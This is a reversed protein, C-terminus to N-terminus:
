FKEYCGGLFLFPIGCLVFIIRPVVKSKYEEKIVCINKRFYRVRKKLYEVGLHNEFFHRQENGGIM